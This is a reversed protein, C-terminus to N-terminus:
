ISKPCSDPTEETCARHSYNYLWAIYKIFIYVVKVREAFHCLDVTTIMTLNALMSFLVVVSVVVSMWFYLSTSWGAFVVYRRLTQGINPWRRLRYTLM